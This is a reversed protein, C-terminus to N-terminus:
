QKGELESIMSEAQARWTPDQSRKVYEKLATIAEETKGQMKYVSGLGLYPEPLSPDLENAKLFQSLGEDVRNLAVLVGGLNYHIEADNPEADLARLFAEEAEPLKGQRYCVVGLNSRADTYDDDIGLAELFQDEAQSLLEKDVYANGLLFHAEASNADLRIAQELKEIAADPKNAERDAKAQEILESFSGAPTAKGSTSDLTGELLDSPGSSSSCAVLSLLVLATGLVVCLRRHMRRIEERM